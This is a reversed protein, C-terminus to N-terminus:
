VGEESSASGKPRVVEDERGLPYEVSRRKILWEDGDRVFEDLYKLRVLLEKEDGGDTRRHYALAYTEVRAADGSLEIVRPEMLHMTKDFVEVGERIRVIVDDIEGVFVGYDAYAGVAFCSAVERWDRRDIARSYRRIVDEIAARDILSQLAATDNAM